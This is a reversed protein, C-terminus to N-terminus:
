RTGRRGSAAGQRSFEFLTIGVAVGLNLSQTVGRQPITVREECLALLGPSIGRGESGFVVADDPRFRFKTLPTARREPVTAVKRVPWSALFAEPEQVRVFAVRFFAGASVRKLTRTRSKGYRPRILRNPDHVFCREIGLAELTRAIVCGHEFDQPADLFMYM